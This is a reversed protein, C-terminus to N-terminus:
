SNAVIYERLSRNIGAAQVRILVEDPKPQPVPGTVLKLVEPGGAGDAQIHSMTRPLSM